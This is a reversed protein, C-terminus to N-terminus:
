DMKLKNKCVTYSPSGTENKTHIQGMKGLGNKLVNHKGQYINKDGKDFILKVM